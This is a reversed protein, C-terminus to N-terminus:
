IWENKSEKTLVVQAPGQARSTGPLPYPTGLNCGLEGERHRGERGATM